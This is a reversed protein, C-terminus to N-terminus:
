RKVVRWRLCYGAAAAGNKEVDPSTAAAFGGGAAGGERLVAETGHNGPDVGVLM